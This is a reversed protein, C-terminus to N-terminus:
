QKRQQSHAGGPQSIEAVTEAALGYPAIAAVLDAQALVGIPQQDHNRVLLRRVKERKMIEAATYIDDDAYCFVPKSTM